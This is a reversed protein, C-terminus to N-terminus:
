DLLFLNDVEFTLLRDIGLRECKFQTSHLRFIWALKILSITSPQQTVGFLTSTLLDNCSGDGDAELFETRM